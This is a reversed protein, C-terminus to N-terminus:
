RKRLLLSVPLALAAAAILGKFAQGLLREAEPAAASAKVSGLAIMAAMGGVYRASSLLGAATASREPPVDVLAAAHAPGNTLGVGM